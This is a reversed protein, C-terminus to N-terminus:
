RLDIIEAQPYRTADFQFDAVTLPANKVIKALQIVSTIGSKEFTSISVIDNTEANIKINVRFYTQSVNEPYLDISYLRNNNEMVIAPQPIRFNKKYSDIVFQPNFQQLEEMNGESITVENADKLYVYQSKGDYLIEAFPTTIYMNAKHTRLNGKIKQTSKKQANEIVLNFDVTTFMSKKFEQTVKELIETAKPDIQAFVMLTGMSLAIFTLMLKKM